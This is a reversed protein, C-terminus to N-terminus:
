ENKINKFPPKAAIVDTNITDSAITTAKKGAKERDM